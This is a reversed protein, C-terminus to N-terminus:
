DELISPVDNGEKQCEQCVSYNCDLDIWMGNTTKIEKYCMDCILTNIYYGGYSPSFTLNMKHKMCPCYDSSLTKYCQICYFEKCQECGWRLENNTDSTGGCKTCPKVLYLLSKGMWKLSHNNSCKYTKYIKQLGENRTVM